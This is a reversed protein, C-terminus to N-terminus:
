GRVRITRTRTRRNGSTDTATVRLRVSFRVRRPALSRKPRLRVSRTGGSLGLRREALVVDGARAIRASLARGLLTVELGAPESVAIRTVVGGFFRKHTMRRPTRTLTISPATGDCGNKAIDGAVTPCADAADGVGDGDTDAKRPDTGRTAEAANTLGDGDVDPDCADGAGDGDLDAQDDGSVLACNDPALITLSRLETGLSGLPAAAGTSLNVTFLTSVSGNRLSAYATGDPAIEFGADSGNTVATGLPGIDAVTGGNPGGPAAGDIGGVTVLRDPGTDIGYLTTMMTTPPTGPPGPAVNRDYALATVPGTAPATYTLNVDDGALAGTNPNVRYNENNASVARVRDVRPSFDMGTAWDGAGAVTGSPVSGVFTATATVPDVRYSRVEANTLVAAPVTLMFLEGTAPRTDLGIAKEGLVQFGSIPRIRVDSPASTDFTVLSLSGTIGAAPVAGASPAAWAMFAALALAVRALRALRCDM